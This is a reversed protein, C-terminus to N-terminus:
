FLFSIFLCKGGVSVWPKDGKFHGEVGLTAWNELEQLIQKRTDKPQLGLSNGTFYIIDKSEFQPILFRERWMGPAEKNIVMAGDDDGGGDGFYNENENENEDNELDGFGTKQRKMQPHPIEPIEKSGSSGGNNNNNNDNDRQNKM